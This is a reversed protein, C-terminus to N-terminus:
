RTALQFVQGKTRGQALTTFYRLFILLIIQLHASGGVRCKCGSNHRMIVTTTSQIGEYNISVHRIQFSMRM